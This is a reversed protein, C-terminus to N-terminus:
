IKYQYLVSAPVEYAVGLDDVVHILVEAEQVEESGEEDV